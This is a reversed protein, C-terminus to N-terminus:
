GCVLRALGDDTRFPGVATLNYVEPRFVRQAVARVETATISEYTALVKEPSSIKELFLAQYAFWAARSYSDELGLVLRGKLYEKAKTLEQDSVTDQCLSELEDLVAQLAEPARDPHTGAYIVLSGTDQLLNLGSDVAYALGRDERINLFLRSSMGDGLITNLLSLTYRDPDTRSLGPMALCLHGQEIARREIHCRPGSQPEPAADFESAPRPELEGLLDNLQTVMQDPEFAGGLAVLMNDPQYNKEFFAVLRDRTVGALSEHTGAINQGLPHNPWLVADSQIQVWVDPIDFAMNIEEGIVMREKEIEAPLFLPNKVLDALFDLATKSQTAAVKVYYVTTEQSTYANSVGGIGEIAEAILRANPRQVTGKFLMHEIFHSMGADVPSEYRSGVKVLIGASVSQFANMPVM